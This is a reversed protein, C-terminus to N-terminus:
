HVYDEKSDIYLSGDQQIEAYFVESLDQVGNRKLEAILWDNSLNLNSLNKDNIKGDSIVETALPYVNESTRMINLDSKTLPKKNEKKLVSLKGNTEFIAYDVDALSFVNKKRLLSRLEDIDLRMKRLSEEMIMGDKVVIMPQGEILKRAKKSKIDIYGMLITFLSWGTLAILGNRISFDSTTVLAGAITGIAIASVFNFFTMQSIEKRGMLRTLALLALFSISIRIIVESISM